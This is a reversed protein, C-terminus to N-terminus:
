LSPNMSSPNWSAYFSNGATLCWPSCWSRMVRMKGQLISFSLINHSLQPNLGVTHPTHTQAGTPSCKPPTTYLFTSISPHLLGGWVCWSMIPLSHAVTLRWLCPPRHASPQPLPKLQTPESSTCMYLSSNLDKAEWGPGVTLRLSRSGGGGSTFTTKRTMSLPKQILVRPVAVSSRSTSM